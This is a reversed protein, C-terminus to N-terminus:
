TWLFRVLPKLEYEPQENFHEDPRFMRQHEEEVIQLPQICRREIQYLVTQGPSVPSAISV